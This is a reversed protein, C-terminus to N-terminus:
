CPHENDFLQWTVSLDFRALSHWMSFNAESPLFTPKRTANLQSGIAV